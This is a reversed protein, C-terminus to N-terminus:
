QPYNISHCPTCSVKKTDTLETRIKQVNFIRQSANQHGLLSANLDSLQKADDEALTNRAALEGVVQQLQVFQAATERLTILEEEARCGWILRVVLFFLSFSVSESLERQLGEEAARSQSLLSAMRGRAELAEEAKKSAEEEAGLAVELDALRGELQVQSEQLDAEKGEVEKQLLDIQQQQAQSAMQSIRFEELTTAQEAEVRCLANTVGALEAQLSSSKTGELLSLTSIYSSLVEVEEQAAQLETSLFTSELSRAHLETILSSLTRSTQQREQSSSLLTSSHLTELAKYEIRLSERDEQVQSLTSIALQLASSQNALQCELSLIQLAQTHSTSESPQALTSQHAQTLRAILHQAVARQAEQEEQTSQIELAFTQKDTKIQSALSDLSSAQEAITNRAQKLEQKLEQIREQRTDKSKAHVEVLEQLKESLLPIAQNQTTLSAILRTKPTAM